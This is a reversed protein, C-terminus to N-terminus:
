RDARRCDGPGTPGPGYNGEGRGATRRGFSAIQGVGSRRDLGCRWLDRSGYGCAKPTASRSRATMKAATPRQECAQPWAPLSCRSPARVGRGFYTAPVYARAGASVQRTLPDVTLVDNLTFPPEGTLALNTTANAQPDADILLVRLGRSAFTSALNVTITTKGVGGKQNCVAFVRATM